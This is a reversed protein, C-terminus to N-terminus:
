PQTEFGAQVFHHDFTLATRIGLKQMLVFSICDTLSFTKDRRRVLYHWADLFHPEDVHVFRISPSSMFRDGLDIAKAQL